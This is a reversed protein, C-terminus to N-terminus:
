WRKDALRSDQMISLDAVIVEFGLKECIRKVHFLANKVWDVEEVNERPEVPQHDECESVLQPFYPLQDKLTLDFGFLSETLHVPM